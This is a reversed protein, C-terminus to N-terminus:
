QGSGEKLNGVDSSAILPGSADTCSFMVRNVSKSGRQQRSLVNEDAVIRVTYAFIM